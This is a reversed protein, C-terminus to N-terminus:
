PTGLGRTQGATASRGMRLDSGPRLSLRRRGLGLRSLDPYGASRATAGRGLGPLNESIQFLGGCEQRERYMSFIRVASSADAVPWDTLLLWPDWDAGLVRVEVLWVERTVQEGQETR